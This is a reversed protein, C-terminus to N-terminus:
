YFTKSTQAVGYEAATSAEATVEGNRLIEVTLTRSSDDKKQANASLTDVSGTVDITSTGTGSISQTESSGGGTVSVAGSWASAYDIRVAFSDEDGGLGGSSSDDDSSGSTGSDDGESAGADNGGSETGTTGTNEPEPFAAGVATLAALSYGAGVLMNRRTANTGAMGPLGVGLRERTIPLAFVGVLLALLGSLVGRLTGESMVGLAGIMLLGGFAYALYKGANSAGTGATKSNEFAKQMTECEPCMEAKPNLEEGCEGCFKNESTAMSHRRQALPTLHRALDHHSM